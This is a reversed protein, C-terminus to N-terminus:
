VAEPRGVALHHPTRGSDTGTTRTMLLTSQSASLPLSRGKMALTAFSRSNAAIMGTEASFPAFQSSSKFVQVGISGSCFAIKPGSSMVAMSTWPTTFYEYRVGFNLTLRSNVKFNDQFYGSREGSRMDWRNRSYWAAFSSAYGMFFSAATHGTYPTSGSVNTGTRPDYLATPVANFNVQGAPIQQGPLVPLWEERLRGGFLFEHRGHVKTFNQDINLVQTTSTFLMTSSQDYTMNFGTAPVIPIGAGSFPNPMHYTKDFNPDIQAPQRASYQRSFTALTESFFTPSFTHMYSTVGSWGYEQATYRNASGDTTPPNGSNYSSNDAAAINQTHSLRGFLQDRDSLRHDVRTTFTYDRTTSNKIGFYNSAVMPNVNALTPLPTVSYLYKTLPSERELPIRNNAFPTRLYNTAASQTTLPDYITYLRGQSDVLGSYDGNRMAETAMSTGGTSSSMNRYAEYAFFFFTKNTGNYLKPLFVPGGASAGFENRVMHPPKAYYDTRKRAVGFGSNRNTEFASGHFANGGSRTSMIVTGPRNMKASSNNTETQFEAISDVGPPRNWYGGSYRNQIVAGDQLFETAWWLGFLRSTTSAGANEMGPTTMSILGGLYRGNLPLQEIRERELTGGLTANTTTVLPTVNGVVTVETRTTSVALKVDIEAIQGARLNVTGKWTEMGPAEVKVEYPGLFTSPFLYFGVANTTTTRVTMAATQTLTVNAGPVVAGQADTVTGQIAGAGTQGCLPAALLVLLIWVSVSARKLSTCRRKM